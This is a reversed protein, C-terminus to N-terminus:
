FTGLVNGLREWLFDPNQSRRFRLLPAPKPCWTGLTGMSLPYIIFSKSGRGGRGPPPPLPPTMFFSKIGQFTPFTPFTPRFVAYRRSFDREWDHSCTPFTSPFTPFTSPFTSQFVAYRRSFIVNGIMPVNPIDRPPPPGSPVHPSWHGPPQRTPRLQPGGLRAAKFKVLHFLYPRK